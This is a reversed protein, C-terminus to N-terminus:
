LETSWRLTDMDSLSTGEIDNERQEAAEKYASVNLGGGRFADDFFGAFKHERAVLTPFIARIIDIQPDPSELM